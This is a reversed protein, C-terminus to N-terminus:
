SRTHVREGRRQCHLELEYKLISITESTNLRMIEHAFLEVEKEAHVRSQSGYALEQWAFHMLVRYASPSRLLPSLTQMSRQTALNKSTLLLTPSFICATPAAAPAPGPPNM